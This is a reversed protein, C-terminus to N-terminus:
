MRRCGGTAEVFPFGFEEVQCKFRGSRAGGTENGSVIRCM